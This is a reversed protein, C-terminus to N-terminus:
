TARKAREGREKQPAGVRSCSFIVWSQFNKIGVPAGRAAGRASGQVYSGIVIENTSAMLSIM